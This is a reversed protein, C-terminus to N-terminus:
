KHKSLFGGVQKDWMAKYLVKFHLLQAYSGDEVIKGQDFVLIRDMYMLTSLRHALTLTTKGEFLELLSNQISEETISDLQSTAEDLILIPPDKLFDPAIAICQRQGGSLKVRRKGVSFDYGEPPQIIFQHAQVKKAANIIEEETAEPRSYAINNKAIMGQRVIFRIDTTMM